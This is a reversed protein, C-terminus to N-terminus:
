LEKNGGDLRLNKLLDLSSSEVAQFVGNEPTKCMGSKPYSYPYGHVRTIPTIGVMNGTLIGSYDSRRTYLCRVILLKVCGNHHGYIQVGVM